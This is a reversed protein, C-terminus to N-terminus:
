TLVERACEVVPIGRQGVGESSFSLQNQEIVSAEPM